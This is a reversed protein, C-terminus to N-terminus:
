RGKNWLFVPHRWLKHIKKRLRLWHDEECRRYRYELSGIIERRSPSSEDVVCESGECGWLKEKIRWEIRGLTSTRRFNDKFSPKRASSDESKECAEESNFNIPLLDAEFYPSASCSSLQRAETNSKGRERLVKLILTKLFNVVQVAQTLATLPDVIQM